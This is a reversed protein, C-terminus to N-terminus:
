PPGAVVAPFRIQATVPPADGYISAYLANLGEVDGIGLHAAPARADDMDRTGRDLSSLAQLKMALLSHLRAM